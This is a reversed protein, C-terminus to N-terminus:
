DLKTRFLLLEKKRGLVCKSELKWKECFNLHLITLRFQVKVPGTHHATTSIGKEESVMTDAQNELMVKENFHDLLSM